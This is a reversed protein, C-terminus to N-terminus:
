QRPTAAETESFGSGPEAALRLTTLTTVPRGNWAVEVQVEYPVTIWEAEAVPPIAGSPLIRVTWRYGQEIEASQEGAVIPIETGVDDLVSRALMTAMLHRDVADASRLGTTFVQMLAALTLALIAFAVLVEILTFGRASSSSPFRAPLGTWLWM